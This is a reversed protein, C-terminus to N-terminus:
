ILLTSVTWMNHPFPQTSVQEVTPADDDDEDDMDESDDADESDESFAV